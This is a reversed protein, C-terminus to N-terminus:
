WKFLYPRYRKKSCFHGSLRYVQRQIIHELKVMKRRYPYRKGCTKQIESVLLKKLEPRLSGARECQARLKIVTRDVVWARYEEMIDLVLSMKGPRISHLVGLYPELGANEVAALVYSSLIAYGFNLMVNTIEASGRGERRTFSVSLLGSAKLATFYSRASAGEFGLLEENTRTAGVQTLNAKLSDSASFLDESKHYKAFYNLVARQNKIKAEVIKRSLALTDGKCFEYQNIRSQVVAHQVNGILSAHATGKFGLFFLKIGRSSFNEILDSSFSVGKKAICVSSLRNMPYTKESGDRGRVVLLGARVGLFTGYEVIVLHKM